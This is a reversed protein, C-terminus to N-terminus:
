GHCPELSSDKDMESLHLPESQPSRVCLAALFAVLLAAVLQHGVTILPQSLSFHVSFIGLSIQIVVLAMLVLLFPWQSRPWGGVMFSGIVFILACGAVFLAYNQHWSLLHCAHGQGLCTKVSWSTAMRGGLVCQGIVSILTLGSLFRWWLPASLSNESILNETLASMMAVLTLALGLHITVVASPLLQTVTLAGLGAQFAILLLVLGYFWPLWKPLQKSCILAILFQILFATGVLFADLRHFWELFVQLNMQTGPLLSGYCLPWDPCALGAEMVRTAGGVVVLAVLAVVLHAGLQALRWRLM